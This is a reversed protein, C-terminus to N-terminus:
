FPILLLAQPGCSLGFFCAVPTLSGTGRRRNAQGTGQQGCEFAQGAPSEIRENGIVMAEEEQLSM